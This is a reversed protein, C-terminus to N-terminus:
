RGTHFVLYTDLFPLYDNLIRGDQTFIKNTHDGIYEEAYHEIGAKELKRSFTLCGFPLTGLENRGWDLKLARLKKLNDIHSEIMESPTHKIWTNMVSTDIVLSDGSSIFPMDCYFPPKSLNPSFAQGLAVLRAASFVKLAEDRSKLLQVQIYSARLSEFDKELSLLAPSLAYVCAFVDPYQMGLKIAGYGGMSHGTIARSNRDIITRYNKDIYNVLDKATFDAWKGTVSSNTYYSGRYLTYQDSIVFIFPRIKGSAIAQDFLKDYQTLHFTLSDNSTYGHLYYVVPYRKKSSEYDPPLYISLRRTTNEGAPNELSPFHVRKAVVKGAPVQAYLAFNFIIFSFVLVLNKM